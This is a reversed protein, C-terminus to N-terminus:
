HASHGRFAQHLKNNNSIGQLTKREAATIFLGLLWQLVIVTNNHTTTWSVQFFPEMQPPLPFQAGAPPDFYPGKRLCFFVFFIVLFSFTLWLSRLWTDMWWCQPSYIIVSNKKKIKLPHASLGEDLMYGSCPSVGGWGGERVDGM